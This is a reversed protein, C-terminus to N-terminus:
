CLLPMSPKAMVGKCTMSAPAGMAFDALINEKDRRSGNSVNLFNNWLLYNGLHKTSVGNFRDIFRKLMSHYCNVHQITFVGSSRRGPKMQVLRLGADRSFGRYSSNSDACVISGEAIRGKFAFSLAKATVHGANTPMSLSLGKGDVACPVCVQESSIGRKGSQGGRMHPKRPMEFPNKKHKGKYSKAFFAEDAEVVGDLAVGAAMGELTGLIKHRWYFATDKDLGCEEAAQRITLGRVLCKFYKRWTEIGKSTGSFVSGTTIVFSRGCGKCVYKQRGDPRHGNRVVDHSGCLPCTGGRDGFRRKVLAADLTDGDLDASGAIRELLRKRDSDSLALYLNFIREISESM